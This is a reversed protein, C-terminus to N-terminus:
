YRVIMSSLKDQLNSYYDDLLNGKVKQKKSESITKKM